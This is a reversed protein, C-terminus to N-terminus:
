YIYFLQIFPLPIVCTYTIVYDIYFQKLTLKDDILVINNINKKNEKKLSVFCHLLHLMCKVSSHYSSNRSNCSKNQSNGNNNNNKSQDFSFVFNNLLNYNNAHSYACDKLTHCKSNKNKKLSSSKRNSFSFRRGEVFHSM